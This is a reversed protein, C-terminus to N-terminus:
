NLRADLIARLLPALKARSLDGRAGPNDTNMRHVIVTDLAPIVVVCHGSSGLAAYSGDPLTIGPFMNGDVAIWWMYGFGSGSWTNSYIATNSYVTTGEEVWREPIIQKGEWAGNCLFLWGFRALDRASMRFWYCPHISAPGGVYYCSQDPFDDLSHIQIGKVDQWSDRRLFLPGQQKFEHMPVEFWYMMDASIRFRYYINEVEFDEMRLPTAIRQNFATFISQQTALEFITGLANFDWNNYFWFTGHEHSGREPLQTNLQCNSPHYIGSRAKLMDAVTAEKEKAMLNPENDDLKFDAVTHSLDIQGESVSIGILSSLLSKRMSHCSFRQTTEGWAAVIKGGTVVLVAASGIENSLIKALQLCESSWGMEESTDVKEWSVGPYYDKHEIM